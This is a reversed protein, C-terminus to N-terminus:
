KRLEQPYPPNLWLDLSPVRQSYKRIRQELLKFFLLVMSYNEQARKYVHSHNNLNNCTCHQERNELSEQQGDKNGSLNTLCVDRVLSHCLLMCQSSFPSLSLHTPPPPSPILNTVTCGQQINKDTLSECSVLEASVARPM